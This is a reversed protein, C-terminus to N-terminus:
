GAARDWFTSRARTNGGEALISLRRDFLRGDFFGSLFLLQDPGDLWWVHVDQGRGSMAATRAGDELQVSNPGSRNAFLSSVQSAKPSRSSSRASSVETGTSSRTLNRAIRASPSSSNKWTLTAPSFSWTSAPSRVLDDSPSLGASVSAAIFSLTVSSTSRWLVIKRSSTTGVRASAPMLSESQAERSSSSRSYRTSTKRALDERHEGRQRDVGAVRERVDGIEREVKQEPHAVGHAALLAHRPHLDRWKKGPEDDHRVVLPEDGELLHDRRVEAGQERVHRDSRVVREPHRSICVQAEFFVLGIVQKRRDLELQASATEPARHAELEFGVADASMRSSNSRSSSKFGLRGRCSM